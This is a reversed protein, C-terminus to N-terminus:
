KVMLEHSSLGIASILFAYVVGIGPSIIITYMYEVVARILIHCVRRDRIHRVWLQEPKRKRRGVQQLGDDSCREVSGRLFGFHYGSGAGSM